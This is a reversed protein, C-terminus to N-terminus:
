CPRICSEGKQSSDQPSNPVVSREAGVPVVSGKKKKAGSIRRNGDMMDQPSNPVVSREIGVPVLSGKIKAGSIRRDGNM